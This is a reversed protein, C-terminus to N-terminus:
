RGFASCTSIGATASSASIGTESLVAGACSIGSNSVSAEPASSAGAASGPGESSRWYTALRSGGALRRSHGRTAHRRTPVKGISLVTQLNKSNIGLHHFQYIVPLLGLAVPPLVGPTAVPL